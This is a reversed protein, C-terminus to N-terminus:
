LTTKTVGGGEKAEQEALELILSLVTGQDCIMGYMLAQRQSHPLEEVKRIASALCAVTDNLQNTLEEQPPPGETYSVCEGLEFRLALVVESGAADRLGTIT